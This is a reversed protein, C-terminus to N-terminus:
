ASRQSREVDRMVGDLIGNVFAVSESTGYKKVIECAENIIVKAPTDPAHLLEYVALRLVNRDVFAMRDGYLASRRAYSAISFVIGLVVFVGLAGKLSITFGTAQPTASNLQDVSM